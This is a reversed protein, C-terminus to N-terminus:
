REINRYPDTRWERVREFIASTLLILFGVVVAAVALKEWPNVESTAFVWAGYAFWLVTGAVFLIWGVPRTLRRDVTDWMSVHHPTAFSLESVGEKLARYIALERGLETSGKLAQDVRAWEGPPLEGDLYRMLDENTVDRRVIV